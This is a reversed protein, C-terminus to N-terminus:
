DGVINVVVKGRAHRTETKELAAVAQQFPFVQEIVVRMRGSAVDEAMQLFQPRTGPDHRMQSVRITREPRVQDGSITVVRGGDRVADQSSQGTGPQIALAADVGGASWERVKTAWDPDRYDVALEAGLGKMYDHNAPSASGAVHCGRMIALQIAISGIAGSAGAIFVSEGKRLHLDNLGNLATNGAIPLAAARLFDLGDPLPMVMRENVAAFEAWTGGKAHIGAVMVRDGRKFERVASGIDEVTGTGELGIAYPFSEVMPNPYRDHLGVGVAQMRVLVDSPGPKPVSIDKMAPEQGPGSIVIAKMRKAPM